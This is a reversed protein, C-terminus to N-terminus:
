QPVAHGITGISLHVVAAVRDPASHQVMHGVDPLIQLESGRVDQHLKNSQSPDVIRDDGGAAIFTPVQLASYGRQLAAASQLMVAGDGLTARLQWPRLMMLRPFERGFRESVPCPSFMARLTSPLMLLGFLPTVTYRLIDGILPMAGVVALAADFRPTPYYYGSLLVLSRVLAPHREALAVAVLTGWSHGVLAVPGLNLRRLAEVIVDAQESAKWTRGRPRTSYGFGPRDFAIARNQKAAATFAESLLFDQLMTANGHLFVVPLGTGREFYHLRTGEIELFKGIPPNRREVAKSAAYVLLALVALILVIWVVLTSLEGM